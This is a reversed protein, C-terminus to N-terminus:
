CPKTSTHARVHMCIQVLPHSEQQQPGELLRIQEQLQELRRDDEDCRLQWQEETRQKEQMDEEMRLSAEDRLLTEQEAKMGRQEEPEKEVRPSDKLEQTCGAGQTKETVFNALPMTVEKREVTVIYADSKELVAARLGESDLQELKKEAEMCSSGKEKSVCEDKEPQAVTGDLVLPPVFLADVFLPTLPSLAFSLLAMTRPSLASLPTREETPMGEAMAERKGVNSDVPDSFSQAKISLSPSKQEDLVGESLPTEDIGQGQQGTAEPKAPSSLPPIPM